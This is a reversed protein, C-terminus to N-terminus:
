SIELAKECKKIVVRDFEISYRFRMFSFILHKEIEKFTSECDNFRSFSLINGSLNDREVFEVLKFIHFVQEGVRIGSFCESTLFPIMLFLYSLSGLVRLM